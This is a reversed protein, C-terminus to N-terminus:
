IRGLASRIGALSEQMAPLPNAPSSEYELSLYGDFGVARLARFFAVWDVTGKGVVVDRRQENLDKLHVGHVRPGLAYVARVPDAGARIFHGTDICVGVREDRRGVAELIREPTPWLSRPGHNHIAIKIDFEKCLAEVGDLSEPRPNASIHPIDMVRAFEFLKRNKGQNTGFGCVGYANVTIGAARLAARAQELQEPPLHSRQHGPYLEIFRLGLAKTKALADEFGFKRFCYSQVGMPLGAYPDAGAAARGAWLGALAGGSAVVAVRHIFERRSVDVSRQM